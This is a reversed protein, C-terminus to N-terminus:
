QQPKQPLAARQCTATPFETRLLSPYMDEQQERRKWRVKAEKTKRWLMLSSAPLLPVAHEKLVSNGSQEPLMAQLALTRTLKQFDM